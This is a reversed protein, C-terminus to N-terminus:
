KCDDDVMTADRDRFLGGAFSPLHIPADVFDFCILLHNFVYFLLSEGVPYPSGPPRTAQSEEALSRSTGLL